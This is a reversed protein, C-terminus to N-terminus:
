AEAPREVVFEALRIGKLIETEYSTSMNALELVRRLDRDKLDAAHRIGFLHLGAIKGVKPDDRLTKLAKALEHLTM